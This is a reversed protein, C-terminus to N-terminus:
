LSPGLRMRAVMIATSFCYSKYRRLIHKYRQTDVMCHAHAMNDDTKEVNDWVRCKTPFFFNNFIFHTKKNERCSTDSVSRMRLLVSRSTIFLINTKMHLLWEEQWIKSFSSNERCIKSFYQFVLRWSFGDLPFRLLMSTEYPRVSRCISSRIYMVFSITAKRFIAFASLLLSLFTLRSYRSSM